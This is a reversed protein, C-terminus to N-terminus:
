DSPPSATPSRCSSTAPRSATAGFRREFIARVAPVFSTGGTLFVRDVDRMTISANALVEDLAGRDVRAGARDLARVRRAHRGRPDRLGAGQFSIGGVRRAFASGEHGLGVQVAHLGPRVGGPARLPGVLEPAESFRAVDKFDRFDRSTKMVSLEHWQAFGAFCSRPMELSKGMSRYNTGKGLQPLVVHDIIRYDFRDGPSASVRIASRRRTCAGQAVDFHIV